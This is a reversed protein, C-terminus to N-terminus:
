NQYTLLLSDLALRPSVNTTSRLTVIRDLTHLKQLTKQRNETVTLLERRLIHWLLVWAHTEEVEDKALRAAAVLVEQVSADRVKQLEALGEFKPKMNPVMGFRIAQTRSRITPLVLELASSILLLLTREGPEELLKLFANAAPISLHEVGDIIVVRWEDAQPAFSLKRKLERIDDIPIDRSGETTLIIVQAPDKVLKEAFERAVTCKGVGEPGYFLYAHALRSNKYVTELYKLQREHGLIM